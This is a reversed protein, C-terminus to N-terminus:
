VLTQPANEKVCYLVAFTLTIIAVPREGEGSLQTSTTDLMADKVLGGLTPDAGIIKEVELALTDAEADIDGRAKVYGEIVLQLTRQQTRPRQMTPNGMSEQPSFVCLAPLKPDDLPHVRSAYVRSGAATNGALLAVVAQRIQTRAHTM